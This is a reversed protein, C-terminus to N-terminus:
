VEGAQLKDMEVFIYKKKKANSHSKVVKNEELIPQFNNEIACDM